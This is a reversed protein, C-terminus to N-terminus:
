LADTVGEAASADVVAVLVDEEEGVLDSAEGPRARSELPSAEAAAAPQDPAQGAGAVSQRLLVLSRGQLQFQASGAFSCAESATGPAATDVEVHWRCAGTCPPLTFAIDDHHANFLVVFS